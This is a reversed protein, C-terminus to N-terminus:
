KERTITTPHTIQKRSKHLRYRAWQQIDSLYWWLCLSTFNIWLAQTPTHLFYNNLFDGNTYVTLIVITTTTLTAFPLSRPAKTAASRNTKTAKGAPKTM